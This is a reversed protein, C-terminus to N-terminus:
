DQERRRMRSRAVVATGGAVLVIGFAILAYTGTDGTSPLVGQDPDVVNTNNVLYNSETVSTTAPNDAKATDSGVTFTFSSAAQKGAPVTTEKLTYTGAALGSFSVYGSADSTSTVDAGGRTIANKGTSDYLTFTAGTLAADKSDVKKFVYGYTDAETTSPETESTASEYPNPNFTVTASNTAKGDNVTTSNGADDNGTKNAISAITGSYSVAVNEGQHALVYAKAFTVTLKGTSSDVSATYTSESATVESSNVTVKVSSSGITFNTPVDGVTFTANTANSPYSPVTTSIKFYATDGVSVKDTSDGYTGNQSDSITKTPKPADTSKVTLTQADAAAYKGSSVQPTNNVLMNQYIKTKGSTSTVQVLYYGPALNLTAETGSSATATGGKTLNTKVAAIANAASKKQDDTTFATLEDATDYETPLDSDFEYSLVNTSSDVAATAITYATVTDGQVLGNITVNTNSFSQNDAFAVGAPAACALALAGATLLAAPKRFMNKSIRM